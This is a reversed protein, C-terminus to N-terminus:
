CRVRPAIQRSTTLCAAVALSRHGESAAFCMVGCTSRWVAAIRISCAGVGTSVAVIASHSPWSVSSEVLLWMWASM